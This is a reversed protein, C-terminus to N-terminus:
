LAIGECPGGAVGVVSPAGDAGASMGVLDSSWFTVVRLEIQAQHVAPHGTLDVFEQHAARLRAAEEACRAPMAPDLADGTVYTPGLVLPLTCQASAWEILREGAVIEADQMEPREDIQGFQWRMRRGAFDVLTGVADDVEPQSGLVSSYSDIFTQLPVIADTAWRIPGEAVAECLSSPADFTTELDVGTASELPPGSPDVVEDLTLREETPTGAAEDTCATLAMATALFVLKTSTLALLRQM